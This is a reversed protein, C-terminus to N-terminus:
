IQTAGALRASIIMRDMVSIVHIIAILVYAMKKRTLKSQVIIEVNETIYIIDMLVNQLYIFNGHSM